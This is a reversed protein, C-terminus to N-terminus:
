SVGGVRVCVCRTPARRLESTGRVCRIFWQTPDYQYWEIGNRYDNPFEHHFNHYGEGMTVLATIISNRATHGDTYTASGAYHALSNVCFTSHHVFVLRAVAAYFYGGTYDGWLAGAVVTPFVFGALLAIPLYWKHQWAIWPDM